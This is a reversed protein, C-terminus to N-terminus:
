LAQIVGIKGGLIRKKILNNYLEVSVTEAFGLDLNVRVQLTVVAQKLSSPKKLVSNQLAFKLFLNTSIKVM